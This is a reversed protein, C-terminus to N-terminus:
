LINGSNGTVANIWTGHSGATYRWGWWADTNTYGTSFYKDAWKVIGPCTGNIDCQYNTTGVSGHTPWTPTTLLTGVIIARRGGSLYGQIPADTASNILAGAPRNGPGIQGPVTYFRGNYTIIACYNNATTTSWVRIHRAYYDFAWYNGAEGSDSDNQVRQVVDIVPNKLNTGCSSKALQTGFPNNYDDGNSQFFNTSFDASAHTSYLVFSCAVITLTALGFLIKKM